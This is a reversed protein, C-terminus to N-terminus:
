KIMNKDHIGRGDSRFIQEESLPLRVEDRIRYEIHLSNCVYIFLQREIGHEAVTSFTM